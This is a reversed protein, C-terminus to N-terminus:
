DFRQAVSESVKCHSKYQQSGYKKKLGLNLRRQVKEMGTLKWGVLWGISENGYLRSKFQNLPKQFMPKSCTLLIIVTNGCTNRSQVWSSSLLISSVTFIQFIFVCIVLPKLSRKFVPNRNLSILSSHFCGEPVAILWILLANSQDKANWIFGRNGYDGNLFFRNSAKQNVLMQHQTIQQFYWQNILEADM